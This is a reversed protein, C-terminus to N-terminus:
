ARVTTGEESKNEIAMNDPKHNYYEYRWEELGPSGCKAEEEEEQEEQEVKTTTSSTATTTLHEHSYNFNNHIPGTSVLLDLPLVSSSAAKSESEVETSSVLTVLGSCSSIRRQQQARRRERRNAATQAAGSTNSRANTAPNNNSNMFVGLCHTLLSQEMSENSTFNSSETEHPHRAYVDAASMPAVHERVLQSDCSPFRVRRRDAHQAAQHRPSLSSLRSSTKLTSQRMKHQTSRPSKICSTAIRNVTPAATKVLM